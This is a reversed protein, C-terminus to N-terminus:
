AIMQKDGIAASGGTCIDWDHLVEHLDAGVAGIARGVVAPFPHLRIPCALLPWAKGGKSQGWVILGRAVTQPHAAVESVTNVPVCRIGQSALRSEVDRKTMVACIDALGDFSAMVPPRVAVEQDAGNPVYVHGDRCKVVRGDPHQDIDGNWFFQTLWASVEQMSLDIFQGKGTRERYELGALIAVLAFQGGLIDSISIGVKFPVGGQRTLDMIGAMGQITSDMAPRKALPSGAGFGSVSCYVLRPNIKDIEDCGFAFRDLAGPKMNEVFVDAKALLQRFFTKGADTQLDVAVSRKDSNSLTCFYSQGESHPPSARSLEGSPPEVKVVYAGLAGLNRAALPSTTYSGMELVRIGALVGNVTPLGRLGTKQPEDRSESKAVACYDRGISPIQTPTQGCARSGRILPGPIVIEVGSTPDKLRAFAGRSLLNPDLLLERITYVPGCPVAAAIFIEVCEHVTHRKIWPLIAADAEDAHKVRGPMNAFRPDRGLDDRGIIGCVRGWMEDSASCMLVWGDKAPYTNWPSMSTHRNGIRKPSEGVFHGPLFTSLMSVATDFMSVDVRQPAALMRRGRLACLVGATAYVAVGCETIPVGTATPLGDDSGTTDMLGAISQLMSDTYREGALPGTNGFATMDCVIPAAALVAKIAAPLPASWDSSTLVVDARGLLEALVEIHHTDDFDTELCQKGAVLVPRHTWKPGRTVTVPDAEVVIVNAGLRQLLAGCLGVALRDGFEVILVNGLFIDAM